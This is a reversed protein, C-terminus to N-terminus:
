LSSYHDAGSGRKNRHFTVTGDIATNQSADKVLKILEETMM